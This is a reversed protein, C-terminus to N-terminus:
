RAELGPTQRPEFVGSWKATLHALTPQFRGAHGALVTGKPPHSAASAARSSDGIRVAPATVLRLGEIGRFDRDHTFLPAGLWLASAAIWADARDLVCGVRAREARIRGSIRAIELNVPLLVYEAIFAELAERKRAGWNRKDAGFYLEEPTVCAVCGLHGALLQSYYQGIPSGRLLYSVVNTDLVVRDQPSM